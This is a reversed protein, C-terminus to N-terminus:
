QKPQSISPITPISSALQKVIHEFGNLQAQAQANTGQVQNMTQQLNAIFPQLYTSYVYLPAIVLILIYFIVKVIGTFFARRRMSHLMMNNERALRYIERLSPQEDMGSMSADM